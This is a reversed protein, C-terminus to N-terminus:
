LIRKLIIIAFLTIIFAEFIHMIYEPFVNFSVKIFDFFSSEKDFIEKLNQTNFSFENSYKERQYHDYQWKSYDEPNVWQGPDMDVDHLKDPTISKNTLDSVKGGEGTDYEKGNVIQPKYTCNGQYGNGVCSDVCEFPFYYTHMTYDPTEGEAETHTIYFESYIDNSTTHGEFATSYVNSNFNNPSVIGSEYAAFVCVYIPTSTDFGHINELSIPVVFSQRTFKNTDPDKFPSFHNCIHVGQARTDASKGSHSTPPESLTSSDNTSSDNSINSNPNKGLYAYGVGGEYQYEGYTLNVYRTNNLSQLLTDANTPKVASVYIVFDYSFDPAINFSRSVFNNCWDLYDSTFDIIVNISKNNELTFNPKDISYTFVNPPNNEDFPEPVGNLNMNTYQRLKSFDFDSPFQLFNFTYELSSTSSDESVGLICNIPSRDQSYFRSNSSDFVLTDINTMFILARGPNIMYVFYYQSLAPRYSRMSSMAQSIRSPHSDAYPDTYREIYMQVTSDCESQPFVFSDDAFVPLAFVCSLAMVILISLIKKM